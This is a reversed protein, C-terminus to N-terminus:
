AFKWKSLFQDFVQDTVDELGLDWYIDRMTRYFYARVWHDDGLQHTDAEIPWRYAADIALPLDVQWQQGFLIRSVPRGRAGTLHVAGQTLGSYGFRYYLKRGFLLTTYLVRAIDALYINEAEAGRVAAGNQESHSFFGSAYVQDVSFSVDGQGLWGFGWMGRAMPTINYLAPFARGQELQSTVRVEGLVAHMERPQALERGPYAPQLYGTLMRFNDDLDPLM